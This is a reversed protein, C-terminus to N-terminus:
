HASAVVADIRLYAPVAQRQLDAYKAKLAALHADGRRTRYPRRGLLVSALIGFGFFSLVLFLVPKGRSLGVIFRILALFQVTTIM